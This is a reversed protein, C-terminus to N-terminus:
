ALYKLKTLIEKAPPIEVTTSFFGSIWEDSMKDIFEKDYRDIGLDSLIGGYWDYFDVENLEEWEQRYKKLNQVWIEHYSSDTVDFGNKNLFAVINGRAITLGKNKEKSKDIITGHVDFFIAKIM